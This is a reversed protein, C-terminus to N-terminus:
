KPWDFMDRHKIKGAGRPFASKMDTIGKGPIRVAGEQDFLGDDVLGPTLYEVEIVLPRHNRFEFSQSNSAFFDSAQEPNLVVNRTLYRQDRGRAARALVLDTTGERFTFCKTIASVTRDLEALVKMQNLAINFGDALEDPYRLGYAKELVKLFAANLPLTAKRSTTVECYLAWVAHSRPIPIKLHAYLAKLYKEVATNALICGQVVMKEVLLHRAALYDSDAWRLWHFTRVIPDGSEQPNKRPRAM